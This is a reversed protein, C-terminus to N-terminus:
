DPKSPGLHCVFVWEKGENWCRGSEGMMLDCGLEKLIPNIVRPITRTNMAADNGALIM